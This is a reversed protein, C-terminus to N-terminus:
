DIAEYEISQLRCQECFSEPEHFLIDDRRLIEVLRDAIAEPQPPHEHPGELGDFEVSGAANRVVAPAVAGKEAAEGVILRLSRNPVLVLGVRDGGGPAWRWVRLFVCGLRAPAIFLEGRECGVLALHLGKGLSPGQFLLTSTSPL